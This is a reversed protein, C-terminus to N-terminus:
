IVEFMFKQGPQDDWSRLERKRTGVKRSVSRVLLHALSFDQMKLLLLYTEPVV